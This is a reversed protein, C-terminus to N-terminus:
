KEPKIKLLADLTKAESDSLSSRDDQSEKHSRIIFVLVVLGLLLLLYPGYWLLYTQPKVRPKYLVFEGYRELMYDIIQADSKDAKLLQLIKARLDQAIEANSDAINQNQCKPCRLEFILQHFRNEQEKDDLQYVDVTALLMFSSFLALLGIIIKIKLM